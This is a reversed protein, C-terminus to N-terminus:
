RLTSMTQCDKVSNAMPKECLIHKGAKAGRVTYELHMNNPLVIYIIDVDPNDRLRDYNQYNYINKPNIGYQQAVQAAKNASGSVLAVPKSMKSEAFAPLIEELSLRGLGVIAYGLRKDPPLATPAVKPERETDAQFPPLPIPQQGPVAQQASAAQATLGNIATAAVLGQSATTLFKRRTFEKPSLESM